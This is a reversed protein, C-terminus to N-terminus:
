AYAWHTVAKKVSCGRPLLECDIIWQGRWSKCNAGCNESDSYNDEPTDAVDDFCDCIIPKKGNQAVYLM